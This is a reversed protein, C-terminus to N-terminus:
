ICSSGLISERYAVATCKTYFNSCYHSGLLNSCGESKLDLDTLSPVSIDHLVLMFGFYHEPDYDNGDEGTCYGDHNVQEVYCIVHKGFGYYLDVYRLLSTDEIIGYKTKVRRWPVSSKHLVKEVKIEGKGNYPCNSPSFTCRKPM